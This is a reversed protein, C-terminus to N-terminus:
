ILVEGFHSRIGSSVKRTAEPFLAHKRTTVMSGPRYVGAPPTPPRLRCFGGFRAGRGQCGKGRGGARSGQASPPSLWQWEPVTLPEPCSQSTGTRVSCISWPSAGLSIDGAWSGRAQRYTLNEPGRHEHASSLEGPHLAEMLSCAPSSTM